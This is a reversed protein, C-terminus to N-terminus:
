KVYSWNVVPLMVLKVRLVTSLLSTCFWVRYEKCRQGTCSMGELEFIV